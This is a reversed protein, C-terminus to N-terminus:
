DSEGPTYLSVRCPQFACTKRVKSVLRTIRSRPLSTELERPVVRRKLKIVVNYFTAGDAEHSNNKAVIIEITEFNLNDPYKAIFVRMIVIKHRENYM